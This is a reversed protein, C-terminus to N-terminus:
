VILVQIWWDRAFRITVGLRYDDDYRASVNNSWLKVGIANNIVIGSYSQRSKGKCGEHWDEM